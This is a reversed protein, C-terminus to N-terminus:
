GLYTVESILRSAQAKTVDDPYDVGRDDLVARQRDTAPEDGTSWDEPPREGNGNAGAATRVVKAAGVISDPSDDRVFRDVDHGARGQGDTYRDRNRHGTGDPEGEGETAAEIAAEANPYVGDELADLLTRDQAWHFIHRTSRRLALERVQPDNFKAVVRKAIPGFHTELYEDVLELERQEDREHM